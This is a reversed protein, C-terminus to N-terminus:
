GDNRKKTPGASLAPKSWPDRRKKIPVAFRDRTVMLREESASGYKKGQIRRESKKRIGVVLQDLTVGGDLRVPM